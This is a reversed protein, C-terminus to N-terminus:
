SAAQWYNVFYDNSIPGPYALVRSGNQAYMTATNHDTAGVPISSGNDTTRATVFAVSGFDALPYQTNGYFSRESIWEACKGINSYTAYYNTYWGNVWDNVHMVTQGAQYDVYAYVNDGPNVAFTELEGPGSGGPFVYELWAHYDTGNPCYYGPLNTCDISDTGAQFLTGGGDASDGGIGVWTSSLSPNSSQGLNLTPVYWQAEVHTYYHSGNTAVYGAWNTSMENSNSIRSLTQHSLGNNPTMCARHKSHHLLHSWFAERGVYLSKEPLGYRQLEQESLKTLDVNTPPQECIAQNVGAVKTISAIDEMTLLALGRLTGMLMSLLSAVVVIVTFRKSM